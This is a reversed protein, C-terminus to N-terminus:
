KIYRVEKKNDMEIEEEGDSKSSVTVIRITRGVANYTFTTYHGPWSALDNRVEEKCNNNEEGRESERPRKKM